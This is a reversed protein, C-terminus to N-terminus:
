YFGLCRWSALWLLLESNVPYCIKKWKPRRQVAEDRKGRKHMHGHVNLLKVSRKATWPNSDIVYKKTNPPIEIKYTGVRAEM